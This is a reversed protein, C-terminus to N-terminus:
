NEKTQKAAKLSQARSVAATADVLGCGFWFSHGNTDFAGDHGQNNHPASEDLTFDLSDRNGTQKIIMGIEAATLEPHTSKILGCVGAVQPTAGSTGGMETTVEGMEVSAVRADFLGRGHAENDATVLTLDNYKARTALSRPDFNDSPAVISLERGWSSYLSKRGRCSLSGVVIVGPLEPWFSHIPRNRFFTGLRNGQDDFYEMGDPNEEASLSLPLNQNGAAFCVVLGKGDKGGTSTLESFLDIAVRTPVSLPTQQAGWSCSVIHAHKSVYKFIRLTTNQSIYGFRTRVPMFSCGPAVGSVWRKGRGIALAACPTGHYDGLEKVALPSSDAPVLEGDPADIDAYRAFDSPNVIASDLDPHALDYGDDIVAVVIDASGRTAQWAAAANVHIDSLHAAPDGPLHWQKALYAPSTRSMRSVPEPEAYIVSESTELRAQLKLPNCGTADTLTLQYLHDALRVPKILSFSRQLEELKDVSAVRINIRDTTVFDVTNGTEDKYLFTHHAVDSTRVLSM